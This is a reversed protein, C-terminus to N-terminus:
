MSDSWFEAKLAQRQEYANWAAAEFRTFQFRSWRAEAISSEAQDFRADWDDDWAPEAEEAVQADTPLPSEVVAPSKAVVTSASRAAWQSEALPVLLLFSAATALFGTWSHELTSARERRHNPASLVADVLAEADIADDTDELLDALGLYAQHLSQTEENMAVSSNRRTALQMQQEFNPPKM